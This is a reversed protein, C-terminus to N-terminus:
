NGHIVLFFGTFHYYNKLDAKKVVLKGKMPDGITVDEPTESMIAIFHGAGGPM